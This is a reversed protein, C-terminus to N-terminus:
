AVGRWPLFGTGMRTDGTKACRGVEHTEIERASVEAIIPESADVKRRGVWADMSGADPAEAMCKSTEEGVRGHGRRAEGAQTPRAQSELLTVLVRRHRASTRGCMATRWATAAYGRRGRAGGAGRWWGFGLIADVCAGETQICESRGVEGCACGARDGGFGVSACSACPADAYVPCPLDILWRKSAACVIDQAVGQMPLVAHAGARIVFHRLSQRPLSPCPRPLPPQVQRPSVGSRVSIRRHLFVPIRSVMVLEQEHLADWGAGGGEGCGDANYRNGPAPVTGRVNGAEASPITDTDATLLLAVSPLAPSAPLAQAKRIAPSPAMRATRIRPSREESRTKLRSTHGMEERERGRVRQRVDRLEVRLRAPGRESKEKQTNQAAESTQRWIRRHPLHNDGISSADRAISHNETHVQRPLVAAIRRLRGIYGYSARLSLDKDNELRLKELNTQDLKWADVASSQRSEAPSVSLASTIDM